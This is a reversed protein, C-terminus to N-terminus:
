NPEPPTLTSKLNKRLLEFDVAGVNTDTDYRRALDLKIAELESPMRVMYDDFIAVYGATEYTGSIKFAGIGWVNVTLRPRNKSCLKERDPSPGPRFSSSSLIPTLAAGETGLFVLYDSGIAMPAPNSFLVATGEARAGKLSEKVRLVYRTGCNGDILQGMEIRGVLIHESAEVLESLEVPHVTLASSDTILALALATALIRKM